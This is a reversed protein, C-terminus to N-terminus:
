VESSFELHTQPPEAGRNGAFEERVCALLDQKLRATLPDECWREPLPRPDDWDSGHVVLISQQIDLIGTHEWFGKPNEAAPANMLKSGLDVGLLGLLGTLASTGSRHMGLVVLVESANAPATM